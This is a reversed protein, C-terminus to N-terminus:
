IERPCPQIISTCKDGTDPDYLLTLAKLNLKSNYVYKQLCLQVPSDVRGFAIVAKTTLRSFICM